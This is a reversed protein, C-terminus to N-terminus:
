ARTRLGPKASPAESRPQEAPAEADLDDRQLLRWCAIVLLGHALALAFYDVM